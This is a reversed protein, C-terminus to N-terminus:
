RHRAVLLHYYYHIYHTAGAAVLIVTAMAVLLISEVSRSGHHICSYVLARCFRMFALLSCCCWECYRSSPPLIMASTNNLLLLLQKGDAQRGARRAAPQQPRETNALLSPSPLYPLHAVSSTESESRYQRQMASNTSRPSLYAAVTVPVGKMGYGSEVIYFSFPFADSFLALVLYLICLHACFQLCTSRHFASM